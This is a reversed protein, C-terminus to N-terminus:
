PIDCARHRAIIQSHVPVNSVLQRYILEKAQKPTVPVLRLPHAGGIRLLVEREHRIKDLAVGRSLGFGVRFLLFSQRGQDLLSCAGMPPM